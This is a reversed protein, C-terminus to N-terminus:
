LAEGLRRQHSTFITSWMGGTAETSLAQAAAYSAILRECLRVDAESVAPPDRFDLRGM